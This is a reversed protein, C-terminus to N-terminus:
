ITEYIRRAQEIFNSVLQEDKEGIVKELGSSADVGLLSKGTKRIVNGVNDKNLGGAAIVNYKEALKRVKDGNVLSGQGQKARDVLFIDVVNEYKNIQQKADELTIKKIIPVPIQRCYSVNEDGHLQVYDLPVAQVLSIVQEIPENQFVGVVSINQGHALKSIEKSTKIDAFRVSNPVFILGIMTPKHKIVRNASAIDKVGCIKVMFNNRLEKIKAQVNKAKLLSTGALIGKAGFDIAKQVDHQTKIGSFLLPTISKPIKKLIKLAIDYDITLTSLNRANVGIIKAGAKIALDLEKKSFVEVVPVLGIEYSFSILESLKQQNLLSVILLVADAHNQLSEIIQARGLIFDKRLIPLNVGQSIDHLLKISGGFSSEDTLVSIADVGANEYLKALKIFNGRYLVGETPSKPKIEAIFILRKQSSVFLNAFRNKTQELKIIEIQKYKKVRSLFNM